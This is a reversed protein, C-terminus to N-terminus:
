KISGPRPIAVKVVDMCAEITDELVEKSRCLGGLGASIVCGNPMFPVDSTGELGDMPPLDFMAKLCPFEGAHILCPVAGMSLGDFLSLFPVTGGAM